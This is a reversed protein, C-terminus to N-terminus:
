FQNLRAIEAMALRYEDTHALRLNIAAAFYRKAVDPHGQAWWTEGAYFLSSM